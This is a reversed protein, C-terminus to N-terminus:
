MYKEKAFICRGQICQLYMISVSTDFNIREVVLRADVNNAMSIM